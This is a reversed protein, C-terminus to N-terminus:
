PDLRLRYFITDAESLPFAPPLILREVMEFGNREYFKPAAVLMEGTGLYISRLRASRAHGLFRDLLQQAVGFGAGRRDARVYMKRLAANRDGLDLLGITGVVVGEDLAVWFRSVGSAYFAAINQLEPQEDDTVAVGYEQRQVHLILSRVEESRASTCVDIEVM